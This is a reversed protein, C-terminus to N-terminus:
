ECPIVTRPCIAGIEAYVAAPQKMYRKSFHFPILHSVGAANAIEACATTTLHRTRRAQDRDKVMFSSECFLSHAGAALGVM